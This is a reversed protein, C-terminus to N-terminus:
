LNYLLNNLTKERFLSKYKNYQEDDLYIKEFIETRKSFIYFIYYEGTYIYTIPVIEEKDAFFLNILISFDVDIENRLSTLLESLNTIQQNYYSMKYNQIVFNYREFKNM